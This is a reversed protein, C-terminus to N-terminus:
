ETIHIDEGKNVRGSLFLGGLGVTAVLFVIALVLYLVNAGQNGFYLYFSGVTLILSVFALLGYLM